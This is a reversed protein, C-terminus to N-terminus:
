KPLNAEIQRAETLHKDELNRLNTLQQRLVKHHARPTLRGDILTIYQQHVDVMRQMFARDFQAGSLARLRDVAAGSAADLQRSLPTDEAPVNAQSLASDEKSSESSHETIEKTAFDRVAASSADQRGLDGERVESLNMIRMIMAIRPDTLKDPAITTTTCAAFALVGLAMLTRFKM